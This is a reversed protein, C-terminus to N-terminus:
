HMGRMRHVEVVDMLQGTLVAVEFLRIMTGILYVLLLAVVQVIEVIRIGIIAPGFGLELKM